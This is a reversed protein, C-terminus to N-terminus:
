PLDVEHAGLVEGLGRRIDDASPVWYYRRNTTRRLLKAWDRDRDVKYETGGSLARGEV